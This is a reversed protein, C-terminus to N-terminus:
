LCFHWRQQYGDNNGTTTISLAGTGFNQALIGFRGGTTTAANITLSTGTSSNTASIGDTAGTTKGTTTISLAGTGENKAFIGAPYYSYKNGDM